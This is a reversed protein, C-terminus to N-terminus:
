RLIQYIKVLFSFLPRFLLRNTLLVRNFRSHICIESLLTHAVFKYVYMLFPISSRIIKPSCKRITSCKMLPRSTMKVPRESKRFQLSRRRIKQISQKDDNVKISWTKCRRVTPKRSLSDVFHPFLILRNKRHFLNRLTQTSSKRFLLRFQTM